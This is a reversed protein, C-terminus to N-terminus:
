GQVATLYNGRLNFDGVLVCRQQRTFSRPSTIGEGTPGAVTLSMFGEGGMGLGAFSPGNKVVITCGLARVYRSLTSVNQSHVVATHRRGGEFSVSLKIAEEVDGARVIPVIPMLYEDTAIIHDKAAEFIICKTGVPADIGIARLIYEPDRGNYDKSPGNQTTVLRTLREIDKQSKLQYAGSRVMEEILTDAVCDVVVCVKEGICQIGNEFHSGAVICRAANRLDATEDVMAPPNGAGAGIAKKGSSLVKNVIGPGGTAVVMKIEPHTLITNTTEFSPNEVAVVIDKPGGTERIAKNIIEITKLTSKQANPHQCFVISNGAAIMCIANHIPTSVPGTSPTICCVVGFPLQEIVTLGMDGAIAQPTIDEVGPTSEATAILKRVKDPYRGMKTEELEIRALTEANTRAAQRIAEIIESREQLSMEGLSRYGKRAAKIAEDARQYLWDDSRSSNLLDSKPREFGNGATVLPEVPFSQDGAMQNVMEEIQRIVSMQNEM